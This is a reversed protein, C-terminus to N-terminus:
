AEDVLYEEATLYIISSEESRLSLNLARLFSSIKLCDLAEQCETPNDPDAVIFRKQVTNVSLITFFQLLIPIFIM